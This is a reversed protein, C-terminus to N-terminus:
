ESLKAKRKRKPQEVHEIEMAASLDEIEEVQDFQEAELQEVYEPEYDDQDQDEDQNETLYSDIIEIKRKLTRILNSSKNMRISSELLEDLTDRKLILDNESPMWVLGREILHELLFVYKKWNPKPGTSRDVIDEYPTCYVTGIKNGQPSISSIPINYGNEYGPLDSVDREDIFVWGTRKQISAYNVDLTSSQPVNHLGPEDAFQYLMPLILGLEDIVEWRKPHFALKFKPRPLCRIGTLATTNRVRNRVATAKIQEPKSLKHISGIKQEKEKTM